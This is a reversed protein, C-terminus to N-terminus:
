LKKRKKASIKRKRWRTLTSKHASWGGPKLKRCPMDPHDRVMNFFLRESVDLFGAIKKVGTLIDTEDNM